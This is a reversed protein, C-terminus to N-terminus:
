GLKNIAFLVVPSYDKDLLSQVNDDMETDSKIAGANKDIYAYHRNLLDRAKKEQKPKANV